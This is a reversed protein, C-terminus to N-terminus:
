ESWPRLRYFRQPHARVQQELFDFVTRGVANTYVPFWDALDSSAELQIRDSARGSLHFQGPSRDLAYDMEAVVLRAMVNTVRGAENRVVVSYDGAQSLGLNSLQLTGNTAGPMNTGNCRWQFRLGPSSGQLFLANLDVGSGLHAIQRSPLPLSLPPGVLRWNLRITGRANNVGDVAVFYNTGRQAPFNVLSRIRDPAGNNDCAVSQLSAWFTFPDSYNTRGTYVALVTDFTSGITDIVLAGNDTAQLGFWQSAGGPEGCHNPELQQRSGANNDLVQSDTSGAAVPLFGSFGPAGALASGGKGSGPAFRSGSGAARGLFLDQAKDQSLAKPDPGIELLVEFSEAITASANLVQVRYGGVNSPQVNAITLEANTAGPIPRCGHYWQYTMPTPSNAVVSFVADQGAFVSQSLPQATIRPFEVTSTDLSWSLVIAGADGAFGDVAILYPTGALANFSAHSTLFGGRDEDAAVPTLNGVNTGTYIALLTDFSSGRTSFSAIGSAPAIWGLWVSKGGVKGVHNTEGPEQTAAVNSGSGVGAAATLLGRDALHDALPLAPSTVLLGAVESSVVGGVNAIVVDYSGGDTPQANSLSLTSHVAGPINVGNLRWQYVPPPFGRAIVALVVDAGPVVTQSVPQQLITAPEFVTVTADASSVLGLRNSIVVSYDGSDQTWAHAVQLTSNTAGLLNTGNLLWQYCLPEIGSAGVTLTFSENTGAVTDLPPNTIIPAGAPPFAALHPHSRGGVVTFSGGAFVQGGSLILANVERDPGPNWWPLADGAGLLNLAALNGRPQGRIQDFNGAVYLANSSLALANLRLLLQGDWPQPDWPTIAATDTEFAALGARPQGAITASMGFDGALYVRNAALALSKVYGIELEPEAPNPFNPNWGTANGTLADLAAIWVRYQGGVVAFAGGAYVTNGDVRLANVVDSGEPKLGVQPDPNWSTALGSSVDLAALSHRPQGGIMTFTGGAYVTNGSVALASVDGSLGPNWPLVSGDTTSVAALKPRPQGGIQAFNGALYVTNDALTMATVADDPDPNWAMPRGTRTDFAALNRRATGGADFWGGVFLHQGALALANVFRDSQPQWPLPRGTTSDIGALFRHSEGGLWTFNGGAYVVDGALLLAGVPGDAGPNWALVAGSDPDLAALRQRSQAGVATFTGGVFVADCRTALAWVGSDAGPNWPLITGSRVDVSALYERPVGGIANFYGGVYLVDGLFALASVSGANIWPQLLADAQFATADGQNADVAAFGNRSQRGISVFSGGVYVTDRLIALAYVAPLNLFMAQADPNWATLTGTGADFAAAASRPQGNATAFAGGAYVTNASVALAFVPSDTWPTWAADVTRDGLIHVLNTRSARGVATFQGAVYFGSQGDSVAAHIAGNIRPFGPESMRTALDFVGGHGRNPLIYDFQGGVYLVGNTEALAFVPGDPVWFDERPVNAPQLEPPSPVIVIVRAAASWVAGFLNTVFVTYAGANTGQVQPLTLAAGTSGPIALGDLHWQYSLPTSGAVQVNLTLPDGQAVTQSRPPVVITPAVADDNVIQGTGQGTRIVANTPNDLNLFFTETSETDTDGYVTISVRQTTLGPPFVVTGTAALYDSGAMATGDATAYGVRVIQPCIRSLRVTFRASRTGANGEVVSANDVILSPLLSCDATINLRWGREISGESYVADDVVFLKWTGRPDTGNFGSLKAGYPGGPAPSPFTDGAEFDTPKYTGSGILVSFDNPVYDTASDDFTLDAGTNWCYYGADSLLMTTKGTPGVLLMDVDNLWDHYLGLVSATLNVVSGAPSSVVIASPYLSAPGTEPITITNTNVFSWTQLAPDVQTTATALNDAPDYEPENGTVGAVTWVLGTQGPSVVTTIVASAGGALNGLDCSVCRGTRACTGQSAVVSIPTVSAPLLNTLVVGTALAAGRNTVTLTYTLYNGELVPDPADALRLALDVTGAEFPAVPANLVSSPLPAWQALGAGTLM